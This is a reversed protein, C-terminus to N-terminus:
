EASIKPITPPSITQFDESKIYKTIMVLAAISSIWVWNPVTYALISNQEETREPVKKFIDNVDVSWGLFIWRWGFYLGIKNHPNPSFSLKQPQPLESTISYYEFNSFHTVMLAYIYRNPSIYLTDFDSFNMFKKIARKFPSPQTVTTSDIKTSDNTSLAKKESQAQLSLSFLLFLYLIVRKGM